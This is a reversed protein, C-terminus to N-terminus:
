NGQPKIICIKAEEKIIEDSPKAQLLESIKKFSDKCDIAIEESINIICGSKLDDIVLIWETNIIHNKGEKDKVRIFNM